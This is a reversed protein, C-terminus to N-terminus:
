SFLQKKRGKKLISFMDFHSFLNKNIRKSWVIWTTVEITKEVVVANVRIWQPGNMTLNRYSVIAGAVTCMAM